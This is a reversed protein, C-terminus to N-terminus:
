AAGKGKKTAEVAYVFPRGQARRKEEPTSAWGAVRYGKFQAIPDKFYTDHRKPDLWGAYAAHPGTNDLLDKVIAHAQGLLGVLEDIVENYSRWPQPDPPSPAASPEPHGNPEPTPEDRLVRRVHAATIRPKGSKGKPATAAAKRYTEARKGVPAKAVERAVGESRPEKTESAGSPNQQWNTDKEAPEAERIETVVEAAQILRSAHPATMQWRTRCYTDFTAYGDRWLRRDRIVMLANGVEVFTELGREIAEELQGLESRETTTLEM